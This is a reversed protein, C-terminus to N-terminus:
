AQAESSGLPANQPAGRASPSDASSAPRRARRLRMEPPTRALPAVDNRPSDAHRLLPTIRMM